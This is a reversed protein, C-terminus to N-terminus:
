AGMSGYLDPRTEEINRAEDELEADQRKAVQELCWPAAEKIAEVVWEMGIYGWCSDLTEGDEDEIGYGYCEGNAWESYTKAVGEAYELRKANREGKGRGWESKRLAIIGVQGSDWPCSFPNSAGVRYVTGSHDYLWLPVIFWERSNDRIWERVEEATQGCKGEAPDIYNRHLVVIRVGDDDAYPPDCSEDCFINAVVGKGLDMTEIVESM